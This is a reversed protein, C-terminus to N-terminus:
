KVGVDIQSVVLETSALAPFRLLSFALAELNILTIAAAAAGLVIGAAALGASLTIGAAEAIIGAYTSFLGFLAIALDTLAAITARLDGSQVAESFGRVNLSTQIRSWVEVTIVHAKQLLDRGGIVLDIIPLLVAFVVTCGYAGADNITYGLAPTPDSLSRRGPGSVYYRLTSIGAPSTLNIAESVTTPAGVTGTLLTGWSLPLAGAVITLPKATTADRAV